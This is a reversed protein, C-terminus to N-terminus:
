RSAAEVSDLPHEGADYGQAAQCDKEDERRPLLSASARVSLAPVLGESSEMREVPVGLLDDSGQLPLLHQRDGRVEDRLEVRRDDLM